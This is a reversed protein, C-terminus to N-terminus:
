QGATEADSGRLGSDDPTEFVTTGEAFDDITVNGLNEMEEGALEDSNDTLRTTLVESYNEGYDSPLMEESSDHYDFGVDEARPTDMLQPPEEQPGRHRHPFTLADDIDVDSPLADPLGDVDDSFASTREERAEVLDSLNFVEQTYDNRPKNPM